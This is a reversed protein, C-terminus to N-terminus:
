RLDELLQLCDSDALGNLSKLWRAIRGQPTVAGDSCRSLGTDLNCDHYKCAACPQQCDHDQCWQEDEDDPPELYHSDDLPEM